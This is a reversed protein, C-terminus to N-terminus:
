YTLLREELREIKGSLRQTSSKHCSVVPNVTGYYSVLIQGSGFNGIGLPVILSLLFGIGVRIDHRLAKIPIDMIFCGDATVCFHKLLHFYCTDDGGTTQFVIGFLRRPSQPFGPLTQLM